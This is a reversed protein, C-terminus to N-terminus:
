ARASCANAVGRGVALWNGAPSNSGARVGGFPAAAVGTYATILLKGCDRAAFQERLRHVMASKGTGGAGVVLTIGDREIAPAVRQMSEGRRLSARRLQAVRLFERGGERQEPNLPADGVPLGARKSAEYTEKAHGYEIDDIPAFPDDDAPLMDVDRSGDALVTRSSSAANDDHVALPKRNASDVDAPDRVRSRHHVTRRAPQSACRWLEHLRSTASPTRDATAPLEKRLADAWAAVDAAKRLRTTIPTSGRLREAKERLKQLEKIAERQGASMDEGDAGEPRPNAHNWFTRSRSRHKMLLVSATRPAKFGNTLHEIDALRSAAILRKRRAECFGKPPQKDASPEPDFFFEADNGAQELPDKATHLCADHELETVHQRWRDITLDPKNWVSWPVLNSVFYKAFAAEAKRQAPGETTPLSPPPRGALAPVGWKARRVIVYNSALPHPERLVYRHAPRGRAPLPQPRLPRLKALELLESMYRRGDAHRAFRFDVRASDVKNAGNDGRCTSKVIAEWGEGGHEDCPDEPWISRPVLVDRGPANALTLPELPPPQVVFEMVTVPDDDARQARLGKLLAMLFCSFWATQYRIRRARARYWERDLKNMM